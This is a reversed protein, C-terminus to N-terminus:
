LLLVFFMIFILTLLTFVGDNDYDGYYIKPMVMHPSMWSTWVPIVHKGDRIVMANGGYMGYLVIDKDPVSDLIVYEDSVDFVADGMESVNSWVQTM